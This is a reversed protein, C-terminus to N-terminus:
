RGTCEEFSDFANGLDVRVLGPWGHKAGKSRGPPLRLGCSNEAQTVTTYLHNECLTQSRAGREMGCPMRGGAGNPGRCSCCSSCRWPSVPVHLRCAMPLSATLHTVRLTMGSGSSALLAILWSVTYRFWTPSCDAATALTLGTCHDATVSQVVPPRQQQQQM